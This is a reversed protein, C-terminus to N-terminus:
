RQLIMTVTKQRGSFEIPKKEEKAADILSEWLHRVPQLLAAGTRCPPLLRLGNPGARQGTERPCGRVLRAQGRCRLRTRCVALWFDSDCVLGPTATAEWLSNLSIGGSWLLQRGALSGPTSPASWQDPGTSIQGSAVGDSEGRGGGRRVRPVRIHTGALDFSPTASISLSRTCRWRTCPATLMSQSDLLGASQVARRCRAPGRKYVDHRSSM